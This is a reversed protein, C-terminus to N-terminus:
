RFRNMFNAMPEVVSQLDSIAKNLSDFDINSIKVMAENLVSSNDDVLKNIGEAASTIEITMSDVDKVAVETEEIVKEADSIIGQADVLVSNVQEITDVTIPVIIVMVLTIVLAMVCMSIASIRSYFLQKSQKKLLNRLLEVEDTSTLPAVNDVSTSNESTNEVATNDSSKKFM